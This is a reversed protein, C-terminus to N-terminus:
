GWAAAGPFSSRWVCRSTADSTSFCRCGSNMNPAYPAEQVQGPSDRSESEGALGAKLTWVSVQHLTSREFLVDVSVAVALFLPADLLRVAPGFAAGFLRCFLGSM